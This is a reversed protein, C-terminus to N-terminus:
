TGVAGTTANNDRFGRFGADVEHYMYYIPVTMILTKAGTNSVAASTTFYKTGDLTGSCVSLPM